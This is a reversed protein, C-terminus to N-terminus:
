AVRRRREAVELWRPLVDAVFVDDWSPLRREAYARAAHSMDRRQAPDNVLLGIAEAWRDADDGPLVFGTVNEILVRGMNSKGAVLVPLGSALAELVVNAYEEIESPFAFVDSSAYVAALVSPELNGPCTAHPGLRDLIARREDGDGACFLHVPLGRQLLTEMAQALRDINKGRNLRGVYLVVTKEPAIGFEGAFWGRNRVSPRFLQHEVGRRLIAARNPVLASVTELQSPRSVLVFSCARHYRYLQRLMRAEVLEPVRLADRLTRTALGDGFLREITQGTFLRAYEPTNTHVSNVLPIGARRAVRMATRAYTFYADTTHIVDFARLASAVRPHWPALDTHDPVHSLFRFCSTSLISPEIRYRVNEAVPIVQPEAGTFYVVLELTEAHRQAAQALRIWCKVHGGAHAAYPLDVLVAVRLARSEGHRPEGASEASRNQLLRQFM